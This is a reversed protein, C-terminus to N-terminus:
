LDEIEAPTTRWFFNFPPSRWQLNVARNRTKGTVLHGTCLPLLSPIRTPSCEKPLREPTCRFHNLDPYTTRLAFPSAGVGLLLRINEHKVIFRVCYEDLAPLAPINRSGADSNLPMLGHHIGCDIAQQVIMRDALIYALVGKKPRVLADVTKQLRRGEGAPQPLYGNAHSNVLKAASRRFRQNLVPGSESGPGSATRSVWSASSRNRANSSASGDAWRAATTRRSTSPKESRSVECISSM